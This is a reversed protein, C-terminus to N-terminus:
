MERVVEDKNKQKSKVEDQNQNKKREFIEANIDGFELCRQILRCDRTENVSSGSSRHGKNTNSFEMFRLISM